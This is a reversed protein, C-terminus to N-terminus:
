DIKIRGTYEVEGLDSKPEIKGSLELATLMQRFTAFDGYNIIIKQCKAADNPSFTFIVDNGTDVFELADKFKVLDTYGTGYSIVGGDETVRYVMESYLGDGHREKFYIRDIEKKNRM